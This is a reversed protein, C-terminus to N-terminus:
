RGWADAMWSTQAEAFQLRSKSNSATVVPKRVAVFNRLGASRLRRRVAALSTDVDLQERVQRASQFPNEVVTAVILADEDETTAKPRRARCVVRVQKRSAIRAAPSNACAPCVTRSCHKENGGSFRATLEFAVREQTRGLIM